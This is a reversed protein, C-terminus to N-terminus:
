PSWPAMRPQLPDHLLIATKPTEEPYRRIPAGVFKFAHHEGHSVLRTVWGDVDTKHAWVQGARFGPHPVPHLEDLYKFMAEVGLAPDVHGLYRMHGTSIVLAGKITEAILPEGTYPPVGSVYGCGGCFECDPPIPHGEPGHVKGHYCPRQPLTLAGNIAAAVRHRLNMADQATYPGPAFLSSRAPNRRPRDGEDLGRFDFWRVLGLGRRTYESAAQVRPSERWWLRGTDWGDDCVRKDWEVLRKTGEKHAAEPDYIHRPIAQTM